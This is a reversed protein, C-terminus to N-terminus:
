LKESDLYFDEDIKQFNKMFNIAGLKHYFIIEVMTNKNNCDDITYVLGSKM